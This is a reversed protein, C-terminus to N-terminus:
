GMEVPMALLVVGKAPDGTGGLRVHMMVAGTLPREELDVVALLRRRPLEKEIEEEDGVQGSEGFAM